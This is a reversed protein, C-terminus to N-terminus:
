GRFWGAIAWWPTSTCQRSAKVPAYGTTKEAPKAPQASSKAQQLAVLFVSAAAVALMALVRQQTASMM